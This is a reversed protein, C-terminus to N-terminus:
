DPKIDKLKMVYNDNDKSNMPSDDSIVNVKYQDDLKM